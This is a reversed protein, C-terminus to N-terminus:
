ADAPAKRTAAFHTGQLHESFLAVDCQLAEDSDDVLPRFRQWYYSGQAIHVFEGGAALITHKSGLVLKTQPGLGDMDSNDVVEVVAGRVAWSPIRSM